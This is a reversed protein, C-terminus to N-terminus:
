DNIVEEALIEIERDRESINMVSIIDFIREKWVLRQSANVGSTYRIKIKHTTKAYDANSLFKESGRIPTIMCWVDKLKTYDGQVVEGFENQTSGIAQLEAKNRLSGARM